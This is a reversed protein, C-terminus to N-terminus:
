GCFSIEARELVASKDFQATVVFCKGVIRIAHYTTNFEFYFQQNEPVRPRHLSDFLLHCLHIWTELLIFFHILKKEAIDNSKQTSFINNKIIWIRKRRRKESWARHFIINLKFPRKTKIVSILSLGGIDRSRYFNESLSNCILQYHKGISTSNRLEKWRLFFIRKLKYNSILLAKQFRNKRGNSEIIILVRDVKDTQFNIPPNSKVTIDLISLDISSQLMRM